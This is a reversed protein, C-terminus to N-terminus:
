VIKERYGKPNHKKKEEKKICWINGFVKVKKGESKELDASEGQLERWSFM